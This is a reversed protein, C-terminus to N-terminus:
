MSVGDNDQSNIDAKSDVLFEVTKVRFENVAIHLPARQMISLYLVRCQSKSISMDYSIYLIHLYVVGLM